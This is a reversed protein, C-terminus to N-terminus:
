DDKADLEKIRECALQMLRWMGDRRDHTIFFEIDSNPQIVRVRYQCLGNLDGKQNVIEVRAKASENIFVDFWLM